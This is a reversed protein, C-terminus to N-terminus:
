FFGTSIHIDTVIYTGSSTRALEFHKNNYKFKAKGHNRAEDFLTKAEGIDLRELYRLGEADGEVSHGHITIM